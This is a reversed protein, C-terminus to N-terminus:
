VRILMKRRCNYYVKLYPPPIVLLYLTSATLLTVLCHAKIEDFDREELKLLDEIAKFEASLACQKNTILADILEGGFLPLCGAIFLILTSGFQYLENCLTRVFSSSSSRLTRVKIPCAQFDSLALYVIGISRILTRYDLSYIADFPNQLPASLTPEFRQRIMTMFASPEMFLVSFLLLALVVFAALIQKAHRILSLLFSGSTTSSSCLIIATLM